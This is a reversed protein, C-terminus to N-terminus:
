PKYDLWAQYAPRPSGDQRRLTIGGFLQWDPSSGGSDTPPYLYLWNVVRLNAGQLLRPLEGIYDVQARESASWAPQLSGLIEAPWGTETVAVPKDGIRSILPALYGAPLDAPNAQGLWPYLTLGIIDIKALDYAGLADWHPQTWGNLGGLGALHEYNFVTGVLTDPAVEKVADYTAQYASVWRAYDEPASAAYIDDENGLFLFPPHYAKAIAVAADLYAARASDNSWDNTPDQTMALLPTDGSRWGLVLIPTVGNAAAQRLVLAAGAPIAPSQGGTGPGDRWAGNWMVGSNPFGAIESFFAGVKSFDAPFGEPSLAIGKAVHPISTGGVPSEIAPSAPVAPSAVQTTRATCAALAVAVAAIWTAACWYRGEHEAGESVARGDM